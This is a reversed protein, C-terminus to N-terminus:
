YKLTAVLRIYRKLPINDGNPLRVHSQGDHIARHILLAEQETFTGPM